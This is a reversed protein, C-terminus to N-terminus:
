AEIKAQAVDWIHKVIEIATIVGTSNQNKIIQWIAGAIEQLNKGANMSQELAAKARTDKKIIEDFNCTTCFKKM